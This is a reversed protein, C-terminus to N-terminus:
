KLAKSITEVNHRFMGIFNDAGSEAPGLADSYLEGGIELKGGKRNVAEQVAKIARPSVSSEVFIAQIKRAWIFNALDSIDRVGFEATTSIGQLGRVELGYARGFYKFADHATILVRQSEPVKKFKTKAWLHTKDLKEQYVQANRRFTEKAKPLASELKLLLGKSALSWLELDFWIHPDYAEQFDSANIRLGKPITDAVAYVRKPPLKKFLSQMKGELHLGNYVILDARALAFVDAQSAKYLHPDTGPGMLAIVEISDIGAVLSETMDALMGTTCVIQFQGDPKEEVSCSWHSFSLIFLLLFIRM